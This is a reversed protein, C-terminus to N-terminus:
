ASEGELAKRVARALDAKRFPKELLQVREDLRGHHIIADETYGSMFLVPLYSHKERAWDALARGGMGGPLVMDTLLLDVGSTERLIDLASKATGSELVGYGLSQLMNIIMTRLDADDEVVLIVEAKGSVPEDAQKHRELAAKKGKYRPLYLKITTGEGVESYIAIHGGSQKVFGHVMSLGLGTGKGAEKTTFFPDFVQERVEPAMGSGTDSVAILVYQGPAVDIQAAAYEDTLRANSAEITLKGGDPMADRANIALNLLANELQGPDIETAWLGANVVIEIEITEGLSRRLLDLIDQILKRADVPVPRLAQKRSFALLRQTLDAGRETAKVAMEIHNRCNDDCVVTDELLELNGLIIALLNNFDHAVGGTLQGVVEMRQAQRLESERQRAETVDQTIGFVMTPEGNEDFEPRAEGWIVRIEGSPRVIRYEFSYPRKEAFAAERNEISERLDDEHVAALYKDLTPVFSDKDVGFIRYLEESWYTFERKKVDLWWHGIHGIRQAETLQQERIRLEDEVNKLETIDHTVTVIGGVGGSSDFHPVRTELTCWRNGNRDVADDIYTVEAGSFAKDIHPKLRGYAEPGLIEDMKRGAMDEPAIGFRREYEKNAFRYRRDTDVYSILAPITDTVLKLLEESKRVADEARKRDTVDRILNITAPRDNWELPGATFESHFSTGDLRLHRTETPPVSAQDALVHKRKGLISDRSDPHVISLADLGILDETSRAGFMACARQNAFVVKGDCQVIVADPNLEVLHRYDSERRRLAEEAEIRETLDAHVAAVSTVEGGSDFIPFRTTSFRLTRDGRDFVEESEIAQKREIVERDHEIGSEAFIGEFIEDATKGIVNERGVGLLTEFQENILLYRGKIDKLSVANPSNEVLSRFREESELLAEEHQNADRLAAYLGKNYMVMAALLSGAVLVWGLIAVVWSSPQTAYVSPDFPLLRHELVTYVGIMGGTLVSAVLVIVGVRISFFIASMAPAMVAFIFGGGLLGFQWLGGIGVMLFLAVIYGARLNYSVRNRFLTVFCLVAVLGIHVAMIPLWGIATIRYLSGALAPVATITLVVLFVNCIRSRVEAIDHSVRDM